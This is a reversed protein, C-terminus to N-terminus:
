SAPVAETQLRSLESLFCKKELATPGSSTIAVPFGLTQCIFDIYSATDKEYDRYIPRVKLLFDTLEEQKILDTPDPSVRINRIFSGEFDFYDAANKTEDNCDYFECVRWAPIKDMRDLNTIVLGDIEGTVALAYRLAVFDLYGV